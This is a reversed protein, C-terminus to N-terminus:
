EAMIEAMALRQAIADVPTTAPDAPVVTGAKMVPLYTIICRCSATNAVGGAPDGPYKMRVGGVVFLDDKPIPKKGLMAAHAPRTRSDATAIWLKNLKIGTTEAGLEAAINAARTTETRAILTARNRLAKGGLVNALLRSTARIDLRQTQATALAERILRRTTETINQVRRATESDAMLRNMVQMWKRSFFGLNFLSGDRKLALRTRGAILDFEREAYAPGVANYIDTLMNYATRESVVREGLGALGDTGDSVASMQQQLIDNLVEQLVAKAIGKARREMRRQFRGANIAYRQQENRTM